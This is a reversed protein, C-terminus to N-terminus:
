VKLEAFAPTSVNLTVSLVDPLWVIVAVSVTEPVIVPVLPVTFTADAAAVLKVTLAGALEVAPDDNLIVTVAFSALPFTAVPIGTGDM